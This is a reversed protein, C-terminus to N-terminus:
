SKEISICAPKYRVQESVVNNTKRRPPEFVQQHRVDKSKTSFFHFTQSDMLIDHKITFSPNVPITNCTKQSRKHTLTAVRKVLKNQAFIFKEIPFKLSFDLHQM